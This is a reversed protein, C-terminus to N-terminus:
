KVSEKERLQEGISSLLHGVYVPLKGRWPHQMLLGAAAGVAESEQVRFPDPTPESHSGGGKRRRITELTPNRRVQGREPVAPDAECDGLM